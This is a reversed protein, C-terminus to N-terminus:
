GHPSRAIRAVEAYAAAVKERHRKASYERQVLTTAVLPAPAPRRPTGSLPASEKPWAKRPPPALFALEDNLLQTHTSIRTAVLPKGSALYTFIKFPTNGGKSRPSVVVDALTLFAPLESPPRKGSFVCRDECGLSRARARLGRSRVPSEEWSSFSLGPSSPAQM